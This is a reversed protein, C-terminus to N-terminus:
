YFSRKASFVDWSNKRPRRCCVWCELMVQNAPKRHDGRPIQFLELLAKEVKLREMATEARCAKRWTFLKRASELFKVLSKGKHRQQATCLQSECIYIIDTRSGASTLFFWNMLSLFSRLVIFHDYIQVKTSRLPNYKVSVTRCEKRSFCITSKYLNCSQLVPIERLECM